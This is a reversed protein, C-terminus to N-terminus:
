TPAGTDPPTATEAQAPAAYKDCVYKPNIKGAVIECSSDRAHFHVCGGCTEDPSDAPRYKVEAKTSTGGDDVGLAAGIAGHLNQLHSSLDPGAM